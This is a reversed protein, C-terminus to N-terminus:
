IFATEVKKKCSIKKMRDKEAFGLTHKQLVTASLLQHKESRLKTDEEVQKKFWLQRDSGQKPSLSNCNSNWKVSVLM